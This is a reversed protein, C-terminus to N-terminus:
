WFRWTPKASNTKGGDGFENSNGDNPTPTPTPTPNPNDIPTPNPNANQQQQLLKDQEEKEKDLKEKNACYANLDSCIGDDLATLKVELELIQSDTDDMDNYEDFVEDYQSIKSQIEEPLEEINLNKEEILDEWAVNKTEM